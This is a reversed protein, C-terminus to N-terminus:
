KYKDILQGIYKDSGKNPQRKNRILLYVLEEPHIGFMGSLHIIRRFPIIGPDKIYSNYTNISVNIGRCVDQKTLNNLTLLHELPHREKKNDKYQIPGKNAM